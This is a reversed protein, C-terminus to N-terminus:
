AAFILMLMAAPSLQFEWLNRYSRGIVHHNSFNHNQFLFKVYQHANHLLLIVVPSIDWFQVVLTSGVWRIYLFSSSVM